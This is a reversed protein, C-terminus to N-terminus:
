RGRWKGTQITLVFDEESLQTKTQQGLRIPFTNEDSIVWWYFSYPGAM